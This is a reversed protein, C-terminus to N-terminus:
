REGEEGHRSSAAVRSLPLEGQSLVRWARSVVMPGLVFDRSNSFSSSMKRCHRSTRRGSPSLSGRAQRLSAPPLSIKRCSLSFSGRLAALWVCLRAADDCPPARDADSQRSRAAFHRLGAAFGAALAASGEGRAVSGERTAALHTSDAALDTGPAALRRLRAVYERCKAAAAPSKAAVDRCTAAIDSSWAAHHRQRAVAQTPLSLIDRCRAAANRRKAAAPAPRAAVRTRNRGADRSCKRLGCAKRCRRSVKRSRSSTKRCCSSINGCSSSM